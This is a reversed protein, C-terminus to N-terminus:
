EEFVSYLAVDGIINGVKRNASLIHFCSLGQYGSVQSPGAGEDVLYETYGDSGDGRLILLKEDGKRYGLIFSPIANVSGGWLVHGFEIERTYVTEYQGNIKKLISFNSGHFPTIMAIEEEGDGDLDVVAIDSVPFDFLKWPKINQLVPENLPIVWVGTDGSILYSDVGKFSTRIFGHNRTLGNLIITENKLEFTVPDIEGMIVNGPDSWDDADKKSGCLIGGIFIIKDEWKFVDIRHLFPIQKITKMEWEGASNMKVYVLKANESKFVPLFECIAFFVSDDGPHPCLDTTGGPNGHVTKESFDPLNIVKCEGFGESAVLLKRPQPGGLWSTAYVREIENIKQKIVKM